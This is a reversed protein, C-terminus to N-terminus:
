TKHTKPKIEGKKKAGGISVKTLEEQSIKQQNTIKM